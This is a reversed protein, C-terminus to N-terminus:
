FLIISSPAWLAATYPLFRRRNKAIWVIDVEFFPIASRLVALPDEWTQYPMISIFVMNILLVVTEINWSTHKRRSVDYFVLILMIAIPFLVWISVVGLFARDQLAAIGSFPIWNTVLSGTTYGM